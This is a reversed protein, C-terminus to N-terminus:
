PALTTICIVGFFDLEAEEMANRLLPLRPLDEGDTLGDEGLLLAACAGRRDAVCASVWNRVGPPLAAKSTSIIVLNAKRADPMDLRRVDPDAVLDFQWTQPQFQMNDRFECALNSFLRMARQGTALNDYAIIVKLAQDSGRGSWADQKGLVSNHALPGQEHM